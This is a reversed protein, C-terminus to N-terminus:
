NEIIQNVLKDSFKKSSFFSSYFLNKDKSYEFNDDVDIGDGEYTKDKTDMYVENSLSYEWGNPLQKWLLESFIGNTKSGLRELNNFSLSGLVFIETSSSSFPSTLLYIKKESKKSPKIFYKQVPTFGNSTKTKVSFIHKECSNNRISNSINFKNKKGYNIEFSM